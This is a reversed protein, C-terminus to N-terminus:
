GDELLGRVADGVEAQSQVVFRRLSDRGIGKHITHPSTVSLAAVLAGLEQAERLALGAALGVLIGAFHADGAGASSRVDAELAPAHSLLSGDWAWSGRSGATVSIRMNPQIDALTKVAANVIDPASRAGPAVAAAEDLNIALLDVQRLLGSEVAGPMEESTFAAARLCGHRTGLELVKERAPLPVEPVALAMGRDGFREFAEEAEAVTAADVQAAASDSTTLNGGTGDPYVFCFSYLTREDALCRVHDVNIGAEEMQDILQAGIGDGGVKGVPLTQFGPGLLTQIYHAIIHLKCFDQRDLFHGSRSEERGLPHDGSVAFVTGWGIGGVGVLGRYTMEGINLHTM